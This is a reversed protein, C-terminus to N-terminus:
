GKGFFNRMWARAQHIKNPSNKEKAKRIQQQLKNEVSDISSMIDIGFEEAFLDKGPIYLRAKCGYKVNPTDGGHEELVIETKIINKYYKELGGIKEAAYNRSKEDLEFHVARIDIKM